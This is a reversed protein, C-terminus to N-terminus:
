QGSVVLLNQGMKSVPFVNYQEMREDILEMVLRLIHLVQGSAFINFLENFGDISILFLTTESVQYPIMNIQQGVDFKHVLIRPVLQQYIYIYSIFFLNLFVLYGVKGFISDTRIGVIWFARVCACSWAFYQPCFM